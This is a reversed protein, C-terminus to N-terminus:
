SPPQVERAKQFADLDEQSVRYQQRIRNSVNVPRLEGRRIWGLVKDSSVRLRKAVEPSTVYTQRKGTRVHDM